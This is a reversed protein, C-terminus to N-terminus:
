FNIVIKYIKVENEVQKLESDKKIKICKAALCLQTNKEICKFVRGFKGEGLPEEFKYFDSIKQKRNLSIGERFAFPPIWEEAYHDIEDVVVVEDTSLESLSSSSISKDKNM